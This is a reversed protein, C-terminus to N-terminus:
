GLAVGATLWFCVAWLAVLVVVGVISVKGIAATRSPPTTLKRSYETTFTTAAGAVIVYAISLWHPVPFASPLVLLVGVPWALIATDILFRRRADVQAGDVDDPLLGLFHPAIQLGSQRLLAFGVVSLPLTALTPLGLARVINGIDAGPAFPASFLYGAFNTLGHFALWVFFLQLTASTNTTTSSRARARLLLLVVIGQMLSFVPGAGSGVVQAAVSVAGDDEGPHTVRNNFLLASRGCAIAAVAHALEHLLTTVIFANAYLVASGVIRQARSM